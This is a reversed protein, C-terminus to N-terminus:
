APHAESEGPTSPMHPEETADAPASVPSATDLKEGSDAAEELQAAIDARLAETIVDAGYERLQEEVKLVWTHEIVAILASTNPQLGDAVRRLREDQFGSDRLKASLGGVAAGVAATALISPPFILGVVGGIVGGVGAGRRGSMDATEKIHVKGEEDKRLVAANQIDILGDKKVETLQDLAEKAGNERTFTAVIVEVPVDSENIM